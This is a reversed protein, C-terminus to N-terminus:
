QKKIIQIALVALDIEGLFTVSILRSGTLLEENM